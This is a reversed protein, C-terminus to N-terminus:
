LCLQTFKLLSCCIGTKWTYPTIISSLIMTILPCSICETLTFWWTCPLSYSHHVQHSYTDDTLSLSQSSRQLYYPLGVQSWREKEQCRSSLIPLKSSVPQTDNQEPSTQHSSPQLTKKERETYVPYHIQIVKQNVPTSPLINGKCWVGEWPNSIYQYFGLLPGQVRFSPKLITKISMSTVWQPTDSTLQPGCLVKLLVQYLVHSGM